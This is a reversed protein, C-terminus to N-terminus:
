RHINYYRLGINDLFVQGAARGAEPPAPSFRFYAYWEAPFHPIIFFSQYVKGVSPAAVHSSELQQQRCPQQQPGVMAFNQHIGVLTANPKAVQQARQCQRQCQRVQQAAPPVAQGTGAACHEAQTKCQPQVFAKGWDPQRQQAGGQQQIGRCRFGVASFGSLYPAANTRPSHGGPRPVHHQAFPQGGQQAGCVAHAPLHCPM